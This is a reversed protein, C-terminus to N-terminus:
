PRPGRECRQRQDSGNRVGVRLKSLAEVIIFGQEDVTVYGIIEARQTPDVLTYVTKKEEHIVFVPTGDNGPGAFVVCEAFM